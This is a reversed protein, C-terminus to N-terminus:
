CKNWIELLKCMHRLIYLSISRTCCKLSSEYHARTERQM